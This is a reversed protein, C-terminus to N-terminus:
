SQLPLTRFDSMLFQPARKLALQAPVPFQGLPRVCAQRRLSREPVVSAKTLTRKGLPVKVLPEAVLPLPAVSVSAVPAASVSMLQAPLSM